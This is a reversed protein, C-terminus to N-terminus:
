SQMKLYAHYFLDKLALVTDELTYGYTKATQAIMTQFTDIYSQCDMEQPYRKLIPYLSAWDISFSNTGTMQVNVSQTQFDERLLADCSVGLADALQVIRSAEPQAQGSEWKSITQRSVELHEALQEQTLKAMRRANILREAFTM